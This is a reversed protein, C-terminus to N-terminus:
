NAKNLGCLAVTDEFDDWKWQDLGDPRKWPRLAGVFPWFKVDDYRDLDNTLSDGQQIYISRRAQGHKLYILTRTNYFTHCLPALDLATKLQRCGKQVMQIRTRRVPSSFTYSRLWFRNYESRIRIKHANLTDSTYLFALSIGTKPM